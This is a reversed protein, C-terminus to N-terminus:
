AFTLGRKAARKVVSKGATYRPEPRRPRSKKATPTKAAAKAIRGDVMGDYRLAMIHAGPLMPVGADRLVFFFEEITTCWDTVDGLSELLALGDTQNENPKSGPAKWEVWIHFLRADDRAITLTDPTGARVGRKAEFRHSWEGRAQSRDFAMITHPCTIAERAFTVAREQRWAERPIPKARARPADLLDSDDAM